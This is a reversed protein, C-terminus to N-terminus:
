LRDNFLQQSIKGYRRERLEFSQLAKHLEAITFEPWLVPSFYVETYVSQWTLFNSLRMEGSTRIIMDPDPTPFTSMYSNFLDEDIDDLKRAGSQVDKALMKAASVIDQRGGYSLAFFLNLGTNNKTAEITKKIEVVTSEPLRDLQGICSFRINNDMLQSREKKLYKTLLKMLFNVESTPRRWNETSFAYLTLNEINLRSCEEIIQKAIRTGKLHGFLRGKHKKEAWRGNGDMIIALHRLSPTSQTM